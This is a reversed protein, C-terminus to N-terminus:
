RALRRNTAALQWATSAELADVAAPDLVDCLRDWHLAVSSGPAVAVAVGTLQEVAPAALALAHWDWSLRRTRVDVADGDVRVVTGWRIRCSDLVHVPHEAMPGPM